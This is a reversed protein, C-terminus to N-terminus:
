YIYIHIIYPHNHTYKYTCPPSCSHTQTLLHSLSFQLYCTYSEPLISFTLSSIDECSGVGISVRAKATTAEGMMYVGKRVVM